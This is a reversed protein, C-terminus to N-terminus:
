YEYSANIHKENVLFEFYERITLAKTNSKIHLYDTLINEAAVNDTYEVLNRFFPISAILAKEKEITTIKGNKIGCYIGKKFFDGNYPMKEMVIGNSTTKQVLFCFNRDIDLRGVVSRYFDFNHTLILLDLATNRAIEALYEIIAYKNKYDFSDAIDDFILIRKKGDKIALESIKNVDFLIQLLYLARKEGVSLFQMLEDRSKQVKRMGDTYTFVLNPVEGDLMVSAQNIVDVEFPVQFRDKFDVIVGQWITKQTNAKEIIKQIEKENISLKSIISTFKSSDALIYNFWFCKRLEALDSLYAILDPSQKLLEKLAKNEANKTLKSEIENYADKVSPDNKIRELESLYAKQWEDITNIEIGNSLVVKHNASFMNNKQLTKTLESYNNTDFNMQLINSGKIVNQLSKLYEKVKEIFDPQILVEVTKNNFVIYYQIESLMTNIEREKLLEQINTLITYWSVNNGFYFDNILQGRIDDQALGSKSSLYEVFTNIDESYDKLFKDYEKKLSEDAMLTSISDPQNKFKEDFSNIVYINKRKKLNLNTFTDSLYSVTYEGSKDFISDRSAKGTAIDQFMKALSTKMMGNPAYIIAKNKNGVTTFPIEILEFDTLGYCNKFFGKM